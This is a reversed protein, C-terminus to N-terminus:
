RLRRRVLDVHELLFYRLQAFALPLRIHKVRDEIWDLKELHQKRAEPGADERIRAELHILDGYWRFVRSRVRWGYLAPLVRTLPIVVAVLPIILILMRDLFTALWFPLVRILFPPGSKYYRQAQDALPLGSDRDSPFENKAAFIGPRSHIESAAQLLLYMLAPHLSDRAVLTATPSVLDLDRAPISKAIDIAGRPLVLHHLYPFRRTYAEAFELSMPRVAPSRLLQRIVPVGPAGVFFAADVKGETLAKAAAENGLPLLRADKDSIGSASLLELALTRTGSGESGTAVRLGKLETLRGLDKRERHFVWVPEYYLSGLSVLDPHDAASALGDQVFGLDVDSDPNSLRALNETAGASTRLELTIGDRALIKKYQDAFFNYGGETTSTSIVIHKPPAPNVFRIAVAVVVIVLLAPIAVVSVVDRLIERFRGKLRVKMM